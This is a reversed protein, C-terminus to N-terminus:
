LLFAGAPTASLLRPLRLHRRNQSHLLRSSDKSQLRLPNHQNRLTQLPKHNRRLRPVRHKYPSHSRTRPPKTEKTPRPYTSTTTAQSQQKSHPWTSESPLVLLGYASVNGMQVRSRALFM